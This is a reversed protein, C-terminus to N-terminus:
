CIITQTYMCNRDKTNLEKQRKNDKYIHLTYTNRNSAEKVREREGRGRERERM